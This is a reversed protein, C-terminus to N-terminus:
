RKFKATLLPSGGNAFNVDAFNKRGWAGDATLGDSVGRCGAPKKQNPKVRFHCIADGIGPAIGNPTKVKELLVSYVYDGPALVGPEVSVSGRWVHRAGDFGLTASGAHHAFKATRVAPAAEAPLALALVGGVVLAGCLMKQM